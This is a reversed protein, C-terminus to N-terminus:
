RTRPELGQRRVSGYMIRVGRGPAPAQNQGGPVRFVPFIADRDQVQVEHVLAHLLRMRAPTPGQSV